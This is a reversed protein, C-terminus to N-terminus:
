FIEIIERKIDNVCEKTSEALQINEKNGNLDQDSSDATKADLVKIVDDKVQIDDKSLSVAGEKKQIKKKRNYQDGSDLKEFLYTTFELKDEFLEAVDDGVRKLINAHGYAEMEHKENMCKVLSKFQEITLHDKNIKLFDFLIEESLFDLLDEALEGHKGNYKSRKPGTVATLIQDRTGRTLGCLMDVKKVIDKEKNLKQHQFKECYKEVTELSKINLVELRFQAAVSDKQNEITAELKLKEQQKYYGEVHARIAAEIEYKAGSRKIGNVECICKLDMTNRKSIEAYLTGSEHWQRLESSLELIKKSNGSRVNEADSARKRKNAKSVKGSGGFNGGSSHKNGM